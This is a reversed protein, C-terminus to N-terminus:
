LAAEFYGQVPLQNERLSLLTAVGVGSFNHTQYGAADPWGHELRVSRVTQRRRRSVPFLLRRSSTRTIGTVVTGVVSLMWALLM